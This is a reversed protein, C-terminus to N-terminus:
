RRAKKSIRENRIVSVTYADDTHQSYGDVAWNFSDFTITDGDVNPESIESAQILLDVTKMLRTGHDTYEEQYSGRDIIANVDEISEGDVPNYVVPDPMDEKFIQDTELDLAM